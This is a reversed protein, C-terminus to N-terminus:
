IPCQLRWILFYYLAPITFLLSDVRDLIGGHGPLISGSEKVGAARKLLSEALDGALAVLGIVASLAVVAAYSLGMNLFGNFLGAAVGGGIVGGIAGEVTKKPSISTLKHSGVAKGTMYAFTDNSWVLVLLFLIWWQGGELRRLPILYSFPLAIYVVGMTKYSIDTARDKLDRGDFLGNLLFIFIAGAIVPLAAEKGCFYLFFPMSVGALVGLMDTRSHRAKLISLKNFELSSLLTLVSVAAFVWFASTYLVIYIVAPILILGTVVRKLTGEGKLM